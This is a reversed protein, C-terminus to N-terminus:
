SAVSQYFNQLNSPVESIEKIQQKMEEGVTFEKVTVTEPKEKHLAFIGADELRIEVFHPNRLGLKILQKLQQPMTASFLGTRRQRPLVGLIHSVQTEHGDELIKDAEDMVLVELRKFSVENRKFLDFVRGVTGVLVNCGKDAIRKLDYEIKNGGILYCM